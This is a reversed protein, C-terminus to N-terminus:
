PQRASGSFDDGDRAWVTSTTSKGVALAAGEGLIVEGKVRSTRSSLLGMLAQATVSKGCGSEGIIGLTEHTNVRFSVGRVPSVVGMRTAFTVELNNVELLAEAM